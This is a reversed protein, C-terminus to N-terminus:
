KLSFQFPKGAEERKQLSKTFKAFIFRECLTAQKCNTQTYFKNYHHDTKTREKM